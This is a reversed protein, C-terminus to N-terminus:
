QPEVTRTRTSCWEHGTRAAGVHFHQLFPAHVLFENPSVARRLGDARLARTPGVLNSGASPNEGPLVTGMCKPKTQPRVNSM